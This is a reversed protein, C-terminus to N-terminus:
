RAPPSTIGLNYAEFAWIDAEQSIEEDTAMYLHSSAGTTALLIANACAQSAM